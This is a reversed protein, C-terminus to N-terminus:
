VTADDGGRVRVRSPEVIWLLAQPGGVSPTPAAAVRALSIAFTPILPPVRRSAVPKTRQIGRTTPVENM